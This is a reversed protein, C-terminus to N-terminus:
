DPLHEMTVHWQNNWLSVVGPTSVIEGWEWASDSWAGELKGNEFRFEWKIESYIGIKKELKVMRAKEEENLTSSDRLKIYERWDSGYKKELGALRTKEKESLSKLIRLNAYERAQPDSFRLISFTLTVQGNKDRQFTAWRPNGNWQRCGMQEKPSREVLVSPSEGWIRRLEGKRAWCYVVDARQEDVIEKVILVGNVGYRTEIEGYSIPSVRWYRGGWKGSFVKVEDPLSHNPSIGTIKQITGHLSNTTSCAVLSGLLLLVILCRLVLSRKKM